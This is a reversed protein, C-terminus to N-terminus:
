HASRNAAEVMGSAMAAEARRALLELGLNHTESALSTLHKHASSSKTKVELEGMSLRAEYELNLYGLRKATGIVSELHQQAAGLGSKSVSATAMKVRSQQIQAALKLAPDSNTLSLDAGHLAAKRAEDLQGQRLLAQSLLTYASSADPDNKEKEFEALAARLLSEAQEPHGEEIALHALEIQSEAALQLAGVKQRIALTQEFQSRAGALDGQFELAKGLEIMAATLYQYAGQIPRYGDV